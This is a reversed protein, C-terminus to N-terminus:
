YYEGKHIYRYRADEDYLHTAQREIRWVIASELQGENLGCELANEYVVGTRNNKVMPTKYKPEKSRNMENWELVRGRTDWRLNSFHCNTFDGDIHWVATEDEYIPPSLFAKAVLTNIQRLCRTKSDSAYLTVVPIGRHNLSVKRPNVNDIHKVRGHTSILYHPLEQIERWEEGEFM